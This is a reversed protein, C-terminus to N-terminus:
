AGASLPGAHGEPRGQGHAHGLRDHARRTRQAQTRGCAPEKASSMASAAAWFIRTGLGITRFYPDNLLPSLQGATAYNANTPTPSSRDWIHIQAQVDPQHRLQLEPLLQASQVSHRQAARGPFGKEIAKRPYYDTGYTDAKLHVRKGKVLDEIVHGGGYKFQRLM